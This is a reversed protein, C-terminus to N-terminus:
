DHKLFPYSGNAIDLGTFDWFKNSWGLINIFFESEFSSLDNTKIGFNVGLVGENNSTVSGFFYLHEQDNNIPLVGGLSIIRKRRIM